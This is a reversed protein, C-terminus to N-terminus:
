RQIVLTQVSYEEARYSDARLMEAYSRRRATQPRHSGSYTADSLFDYGSRGTAFGSERSSAAAFSPSGGSAATREGCCSVNAERESFM